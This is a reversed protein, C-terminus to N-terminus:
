SCLAVIAAEICLPLSHYLAVTFALSGGRLGLTFMHDFPLLSNLSVFAVWQVRVCELVNHSIADSAHPCGFVCSHSPRQM